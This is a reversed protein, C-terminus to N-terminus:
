CQPLRDEAGPPRGHVPLQTPARGLSVGSPAQLVQKGQNHCGFVDRCMATRGRPPLVAGAGVERGCAVPGLRGRGGGPRGRM